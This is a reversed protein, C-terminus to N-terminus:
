YGRPVWLVQGAQLATSGLGNQGIIEQIVVRPDASPDAATAISWLTQGPRVVVRELGGGTGTRKLHSAAQAQGAVVFWVLGAIAVTVVALFVAVVIRGRRTLRVPGAAASSRSPGATGAGRAPGATGAGRVPGVPAVGRRPGPMAPKPAPAQVSEPGPQGAGARDGPETDPVVTLRRKPYSTRARMAAIDPRIRANLKAEAASTMGM